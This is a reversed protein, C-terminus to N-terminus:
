NLNCQRHETSDSNYIYVYGQTKGGQRNILSVRISHHFIKSFLTNVIDSFNFVHQKPMTSLVLIKASQKIHFTNLYPVLLKSSVFFCDTFEPNKKWFHSKWCVSADSQLNYIEFPTFFFRVNLNLCKCTSPDASCIYIQIYIYKFHLEFLCHSYCVVIIFTNLLLILNKNPPKFDFIYNLFYKTGTQKIISINSESHHLWYM